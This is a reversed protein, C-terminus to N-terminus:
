AIRGLQAETIAENYIALLMKLNTQPLYLEEYRKRAATQMAELAPLDSLMKCVARCLNVPDGSTYLLGSVGDQVVSSMPDLRTTVIPVGAALAEGLTLPGGAEHWESPVIQLRARGILETVAERPQSGLYKIRGPMALAAASVDSELPGTGAIYLQIPFEPQAAARLLTHIGKEVSLRGIYLAYNGDRPGLGPDFIVNPKLRVRGEPLGLNAILIKRAFENLTIYRHVKNRWTGHVRHAASMAAITASGVLSDRYCRYRVAPWAISRGLCETCTHGDRFLTGAPCVLRYNHLTQVVACGAAFAADYISPSLKPFLNHVHLISANHNRLQRHVMARASLSYFSNLGGKVKDGISSIDTNSVEVVEVALGAGRLMAAEQQVVVDEGGHLKYRNHLILIRM